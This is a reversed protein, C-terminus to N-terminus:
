TASAVNLVDVSSNYRKFGLYVRNQKDREARVNEKLGAGIEGSEELALRLGIARVFALDEFIDLEGLDVPKGVGVSYSADSSVEKGETEIVLAKLGEPDAVQLVGRDRCCDACPGGARPVAEHQTARDDLAWGIGDLVSSVKGRKGRDIMKLRSAHCAVIDADEKGAEAKLESGGILTEQLVPVDVADGCIDGPLWRRNREIDFGFAVVAVIAAAIPDFGGIQKAM